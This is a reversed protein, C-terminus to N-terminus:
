LHFRDSLKKRTLVLNEDCGMRCKPEGDFFKTDFREVISEYGNVFKVVHTRMWVVLQTLLKSGEDLSVARVNDSHGAGIEPTIRLRNEIWCIFSAEFGHRVGVVLLEVAVLVQLREVDAVEEVGSGIHVGQRLNEIRGELGDNVNWVHIRSLACFVLIAFNLVGHSVDSLPHTDIWLSSEM